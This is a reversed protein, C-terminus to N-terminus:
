RRGASGLPVGLAGDMRPPAGTREARGPAPALRGASRPRCTSRGPHVGREQADGRAPWQFVGARGAPHEGHLRPGRGPPCLSGRHPGRHRSAHSLVPLLPPGGPAGRPGVDGQPLGRAARPDDGQGPAQREGPASLLKLSRGLKSAPNVSIVEDEVAHNLMVHLAAYAIRVTDRDLGRRLLDALWRKIQGRQLSRVRARGFAPEIYRRFQDRYLAVTRARLTVGHVTLFESHYATVTIGAPVAPRRRPQREEQAVRAQLEKAADLGHVTKWRKQGTADRWIM